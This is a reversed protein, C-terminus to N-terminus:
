NWRANRLMQRFQRRQEEEESRPSEGTAWGIRGIAAEQDIDDLEREIDDRQEMMQAMVDEIEDRQAEGLAPHSLMFALSHLAIDMEQTEPHKM